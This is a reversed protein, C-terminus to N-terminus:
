FGADPNVVRPNCTSQLALDQNVVRFNCHPYFASNKINRKKRLYSPPIYKGDKTVYGGRESLLLKRWEAMKQQQNIDEIKRIGIVLFSMLFAIFLMGFLKEKKSEKTAEENSRM